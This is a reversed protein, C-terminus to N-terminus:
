CPFRCSPLCHRDEVLCLHLTRTLAAVRASRARRAASRNARSRRSVSRRLTPVASARGPNPPTRAAAPPPDGSKPGVADLAARDRGLRLRRSSARARRCSSPLDRRRDRLWAPSDGRAKGRACRPRRRRHRGSCRRVGSDERSPRARRHSSLSRSVRRELISPHKGQDVAVVSNGPGWLAQKVRSLSRNGRPGLIGLWFQEVYTSRPDHGLRDVLPDVWVSIHLSDNPSEAQEPEPTTTLTM